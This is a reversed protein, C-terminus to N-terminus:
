YCRGDEPYCRGDEPYRGDEQYCRKEPPAGIGEQSMQVEVTM